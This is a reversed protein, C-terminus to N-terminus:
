YSVYILTVKNSFHLIIFLFKPPPKLQGTQGWGPQPGSKVEM